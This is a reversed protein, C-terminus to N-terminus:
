IRPQRLLGLRRLKAAAEGRRGVGLKDLINHIHNKTTSLQVHLRSAIEKNCLGEDILRTIQLERATLQTDQCLDTREAALRGVRRLLAAAIRPSCSLEERSAREIAEMLEDLSAERCIYGAIGAEACEIIDEPRESMGLVIVKTSSFQEAIAKIALMAGPMGKDLLVTDPALERIHGLAEDVQSAMAVEQFHTERTLLQALGERFLRIDSVVLVKAM